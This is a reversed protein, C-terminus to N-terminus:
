NPYLVGRFYAARDIAASAALRTELPELAGLVVLEPIWTNGVQVVDPMSGGVWATLLKEHAASWPVRQVDVTPGPHRREVEPLLQEVGEGESGMAWLAVTGPARATGGCGAALLLVLAGVGRVGGGARRGRAAGLARRSGPGRAGVGARPAPRG